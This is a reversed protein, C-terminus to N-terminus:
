LSGNGQGGSSLMVTRVEDDAKDWLHAAELAELGHLIRALLTSHTKTSVMSMERVPKDDRETSHALIDDCCKEQNWPLLLTCAHSM